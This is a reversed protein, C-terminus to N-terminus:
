YPHSLRMHRCALMPPVHVCSTARAARKSCGNPLYLAPRDATADHELELEIVYLLFRAPVIVKLSLLIVHRASRSVSNYVRAEM